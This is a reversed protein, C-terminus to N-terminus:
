SDLIISLKHWTSRREVEEPWTTIDPSIGDCLELQRRPNLISIAIMMRTGIYTALDNLVPVYDFFSV